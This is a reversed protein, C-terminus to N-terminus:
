RTMDVVLKGPAHGTRHRELTAPLGALDTVDAVTVRLTGAAVAALIAALRAADPRMLLGVGRQGADRAAAPVRAALDPAATSVLVGHPALVPWSRALTEGGVLDLVVEAHTAHRAFWHEFPEARYDLVVDAGLRRVHDHSTAAATAIVALGRAKAFQVAFEGVSGAAGHVLVTRGAPLAGLTQEAAEWAQWATLGGVSVAAAEVDTVADPIRALVAADLAVFDAYAGFTLLPGTVRDGVAFPLEPGGPASAAVRVVAGALEVGLTVPLPLPFLNALLGDRVKWDLGNVGAAHVHVLVQGQHPVPVAVTDVRLADPGGYAHVRAAASRSGRGSRLEARVFAGVLDLARTAAALTGVNAPFVHPMGEWVHTEVRVGAARAREAYRRTDDLLVEDTGVHLQLPPLDALDAPDTYLPSARADHADGGALYSAGTAALMAPTVLPDADARDRMSPGALALDTWPSMAVGAAPARGRGARAERLAAALVVLALGGGASDGVVAVAQAGVAVLGRYAATADDVAAPFPHEPALRYDPVFAAVGARAAIQGALHTFARATGLVYAGGHLYLIAAGEAAHAPRCWVGPVGGVVADEYRVGPADPVRALVDDFAGRAAPGSMLGKFPAAENRLRAAAAMDRGALSHVIESASGAPELPPAHLADRPASPRADRLM